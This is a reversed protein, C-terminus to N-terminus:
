VATVGNGNADRGTAHYIGNADMDDRQTNPLNSRRWAEEFKSNFRGSTSKPNLRAFEGFYRNWISSANADIERQMRSFM